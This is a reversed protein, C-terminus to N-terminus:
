YGVADCMIKIYPLLRTYSVSVADLATRLHPLQDSLAFDDILWYSLEIEFDTVNREDTRQSGSVNFYVNDFNGAADKDGYLTCIWYLNYREDFVVGTSGFLTNYLTSSEELILDAVTDEAWSESDNDIGFFSLSLGNKETYVYTDNRSEYDPNEIWEVMFEIGDPTTLLETFVERPSGYEVGSLDIGGNSTFSNMNELTAFGRHYDGGMVIEPGSGFIDEFADRTADPLKDEPIITTAPTNVEGSATNEPADSKLGQCAPCVLSLVLIAAIILVHKKM